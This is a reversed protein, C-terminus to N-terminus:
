DISELYCKECYVTEERDSSYSSDIDENCRDCKREFLALPNKRSFRSTHRCEPCKIPIPLNMLRYFQLEKPVIKYNKGCESCALVEKTFDDKIDSINDPIESISTAQYDKADKEKWKWGLELIEGKELPFFDQAATENYAFVSMNPPFFMGWENNKKMHEIIRPVLKEYEEKSYQKNLICYKKHKLGICGFCNECSNCSDCYRLSSSSWTYSCFAIDTSGRTVASYHIKDCGPWGASYSNHADRSGSLSISNFGDEADFSEFCNVCNKSNYVHDGTVNECNLNHVYRQVAKKKVENLFYDYAEQWSKRSGNLVKKKESEFEEKSCKKNFVYYEKNTLNSCFLCNKCGRLQYSFYCDNCNTSEELAVCNYGGNVDSCFYCRTSDNTYMSDFVDKDNVMWYSYFLDECKYVLSNLYSNRSERIHSNYDCNECNFVTTGERPVVNQLEKFQEFFPRSFDFDRGYEIPDWEDGWWIENKYVPFVTDKNYASIIEDGTFDCKRRYLKWENRTAMVDRLREQPSLKPLLVDMKKCLDIEKDAFVFEQKTRLCNQTRM